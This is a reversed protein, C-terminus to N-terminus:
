GRVIRELQIFRGGFGIKRTIRRRGNNIVTGAPIQTSRGTNYAKAIRGPGNAVCLKKLAESALVDVPGVPIPLGSLVSPKAKAYIGVGLRVLVGADVLKKLARSVQSPSGLQAFENRLFVRDKSSRLFSVACEKVIARAM